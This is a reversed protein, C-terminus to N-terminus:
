RLEMPLGTASRLVETRREEPTMVVSPPAAERAPEVSASNKRTAAQALMMQLRGTVGGEAAEEFAPMYLDEYKEIRNKDKSRLADLVPHLPQLQAAYVKRLLAPDIREAGSRIAEVQAYRFLLLVIATIGQSLDFLVAKLEDSAFPTPHKVWQYEWCVDCFKQFDYDSANEPRRLEHLGGDILRRILSYKKSQLLKAASYTGILIIPVGIEDRLNSLMTQLEELGSTGALSIQEFVDIVLAGVWNNAVLRRLQSVHHTRNRGSNFSPGYLQQGLLDDARDGFQKALAKPTYKAQDPFNRMLAVIQNDIFAREPHFGSHRIVPDGLARLIAKMLATKGHGSLGVMLSITAAPSDTSAPPVHGGALAADHVLKQGMPTMPNRSWYGGLIQSEIDKYIRLHQESPYFFNDKIRNLLLIRESGSLSREAESCLPKLALRAVQISIEDTPRALAAILPNSNMEFAEYKEYKPPSIHACTM